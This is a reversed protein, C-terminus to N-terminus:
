NETVEFKGNEFRYGVNRLFIEIDDVIDEAIPSAITSLMKSGMKVADTIFPVPQTGNRSISKSVNKAYQTISSETKKQITGSKTRLQVPKKRIWNELDAVIPTEKSGNQIDLAYGAGVVDYAALVSRVKSHKAKISNRLHGTANLPSTFSRGSRYGRTRNRGVEIKLLSALKNAYGKLFAKTNKMKMKSFGAM